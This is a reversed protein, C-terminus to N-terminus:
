RVRLGRLADVFPGKRGLKGERYAHNSGEPDSCAPPFLDDAGESLHKAQWPRKSLAWGRPKKERTVSKQRKKGTGM